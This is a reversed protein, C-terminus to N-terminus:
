LFKRQFFFINHFTSLGLGTSKKDFKGSNIQKNQLFRENSTTAVTLIKMISNYEGTVHTKWNM